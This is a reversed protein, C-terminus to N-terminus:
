KNECDNDNSASVDNNSNCIENYLEELNDFKTKKPTRTTSKKYFKKWLENRVKEFRKTSNDEKRAEAMIQRYWQQQNEGKVFDIIFQDNIDDRKKPSEPYKPYIRAM